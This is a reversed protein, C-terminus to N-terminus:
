WYTSIRTEERTVIELLSPRGSDAESLARELAPRIEQPRTIREAHAGLAAGVAAYDGGLLKAGHRESALPLHAEYGSMVGDSMVGNNLVVTIIGAGARVATELDMGVMGIAADGMFHLCLKDPAALKAGMTAGLSFGLQTSKGWGIYSGPEIAEWFPIIQNRPGGSDHTVIANGRDINHMLDWIVRYPNLPVEDATLRPMWEALWAQKVNRVEPAV